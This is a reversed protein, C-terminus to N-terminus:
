YSGLFFKPFGSTSRDVNKSVRFERPNYEPWLQQSRAALPLLNEREEPTPRVFAVTARPEGERSAGKYVM